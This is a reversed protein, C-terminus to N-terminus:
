LTLRQDKNNAARVREANEPTRRTTSRGSHPGSEVPELGDKFGKHRVETQEATMAEDELAAQTMQIIEVSPDELKICFKICIQQKAQETMKFAIAVCCVRESM